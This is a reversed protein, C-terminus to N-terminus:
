ENIREAGIASYRMIKQIIGDYTLENSGTRRFGLPRLVEDIQGAMKGIESRKRAWVKITFEIDSYNLFESTLNDRNGTEMYTICPLATESNVFLEYHVKGVTRLAEVLQPSCDIM